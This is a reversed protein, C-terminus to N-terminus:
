RLRVDVPVRVMLRYSLEWSTGFFAESEEDDIRHWRIEVDLSTGGPSRVRKALGIEIYKREARYFDANEGPSGYNADGAAAHFDRGWWRIAFLEVDWAPTVSARLWTGTGDGPRDAPYGPDLHGTSWLRMVSVSSRGVFSLSDHLRVGLATVRNNSVPVGAEHLQGGRHSWLHQARTELWPSLEVEAVAGMEFEERQEPTNLKRWNLWVEGDLPGRRERWQLGYEVPTTLERTSVMVPDILRHRRESDLTGLIGTSREGRWAVALIPKISDVFEESGWRRDILAGARLSVNAGSHALLWTGLQAGFITEGTRYPTFFETNDAYFAARAQLDIGQAAVPELAVVALAIVRALFPRM